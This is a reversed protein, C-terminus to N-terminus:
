STEMGPLLISHDITDFAASLDLFALITAGKKELASLFHNQVRVLATETRQCAKYASQLPEHLNNVTMYETLRAAVARKRVKSLFSLNSVPYYNALETPNKLPPTVFAQKLSIPFMANALSANM